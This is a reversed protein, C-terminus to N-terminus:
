SVELIEGATSEVLVLIEGVTSEAIVLMEGVTSEVLSTNRWRYKRSNSKMGWLDVRGTEQM